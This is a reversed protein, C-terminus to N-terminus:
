AERKRLRAAYGGDFPGTDPAPITAEEAELSFSENEALFRRLNQENEEPELSCTSWVLRGGPRVHSAAEALLRAQIDALSRLAKPGFRWRAGPRAGLVGTNTCPADIFVLDFLAEKSLGSTGDSVLPTVRDSLGRREAEAEISSLRYGDIDSAIVNAGQAAFYLSKGGPAACLDLVSEGAQVQALAAARQAAEGQIVLKGQVFAESHTLAHVSDSSLAFAGDTTTPKPTLELETLLAHTEEPTSGAAGRVVVPPEELFFRAVREAVEPGLRKHWRKMLNSPISLADEMWLLPHEVPDRFVPQSFHWPRDIIDQRPDGSHGERRKRLANHLFANVVRVKPQGISENTARLTESLAAHEPVRDLYLLQVLGLHLHAVLDPKLTGHGLSRILARLTGRHRVETGVLKRLLGRDRDDLERFAAVDDVERLPTESGSRLIMWAGIRPM